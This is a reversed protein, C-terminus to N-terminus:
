RWTVVSQCDLTIEMVRINNNERSIYGFRAPFPVVNLCNGGLTPDADIRLIAEDAFARMISEANASGFNSKNRDVFVRIIFRVTRLNRTNDLVKGALELATITAAPFGGLDTLENDFINTLRLSTISPILQTKLYNSIGSYLTGQSYPSQFNVTVNGFYWQGYFFEGFM